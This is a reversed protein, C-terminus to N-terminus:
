GNVPFDKASGRRKRGTVPQKDSAAGESKSLGIIERAVYKTSYRTEGSEDQWTDTRKKTVLYVQSGKKLYNMCYEADSGWVEVNTWETHEQPQGDKSTWRENTAVVLRVPGGTVQQPDAGLNGLLEFRNISKSM